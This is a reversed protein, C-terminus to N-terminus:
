THHPYVSVKKASAKWLYVGSGSAADPPPSQDGHRRTPRCWPKFEPLPIFSDLRAEVAFNDGGVRFQFADMAQGNPLVTAHLEVAINSSGQVRATAYEDILRFSRRCFKEM